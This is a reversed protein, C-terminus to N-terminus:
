AGPSHLVPLGFLCRANMTTQEAVHRLTSGTLIAVEQAIYPLFAPENRRGREPQPTLYPCDTELLLRELPIQALLARLGEANPYTVPGDVGLYFGMALARRAAELDGSFCHLVGPPHDTPAPRGPLWRALRVLVDEYAKRCGLRDRIHVVVPKGTETALALQREFAAHQAEHPAYDRYYDLGIEGIAVVKPHSALMALESLAAEALGASAHPHIGVTAYVGPHQEALAVAAASAELDTGVTVIQVVGREVARTIVVERDVAFRPSDLHAHTEVLEVGEPM